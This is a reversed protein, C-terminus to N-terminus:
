ALQWERVGCEHKLSWVWLGAVRVYTNSWNVETNHSYDFLIGFITEDELIIIWTSGRELISSGAPKDERKKENQDPERLLLYVKLTEDPKCEWAM